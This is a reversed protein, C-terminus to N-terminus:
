IVRCFVSNPFLTGCQFDVSNAYNLISTSTKSTTSANITISTTITTTTAPRTSTSTTRTMTTRTNTTTRRTKTTKTMTTTRSSTSTKTSTTITTTSTSITTSVILISCDNGTFKSNCFCSYGNSGILQCTAGNKCPGGNVLCPNVKFKM